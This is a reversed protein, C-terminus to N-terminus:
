DAPVRRDNWRRLLPGGFLFLFALLAVHPSAFSVVIALLSVVILLVISLQRERLHDGQELDPTIRIM